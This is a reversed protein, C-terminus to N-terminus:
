KGAERDKAAWDSFFEKLASLWHGIQPEDKATLDLELRMVQYDSGQPMVGTAAFRHLQTGLGRHLSAAILRATTLDILRGEQSARRTAAEIRAQATQENNRNNRPM